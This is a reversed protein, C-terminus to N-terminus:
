AEPGSSHALYIPDPRYYRKVDSEAWVRMGELLGLFSKRKRMANEHISPPRRLYATTRISHLMSHPAPKLPSIVSPCPPSCSVNHQRDIPLWLAPTSAFPFPQPVFHSPTSEDFIPKKYLCPLTIPDHPEFPLCDFKLVDMGDLRGDM